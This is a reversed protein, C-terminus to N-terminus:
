RSGEAPPSDDKNLAVRLWRYVERGGLLGGVGILVLGLWTGVIVAGAIVIGGFALIVVVVRFADAESRLPNRM